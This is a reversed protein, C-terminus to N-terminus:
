VADLPQVKSLSFTFTIAFIQSVVIIGNIFFAFSETPCSAKSISVSKKVVVAAIGGTSNDLTLVTPEREEVCVRGSVTNM